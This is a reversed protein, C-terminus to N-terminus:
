QERGPTRAGAISLMFDGAIHMGHQDQTGPDYRFCVQQALVAVLYPNPPGGTSRWHCTTHMCTSRAATAKRDTGDAVMMIQRCQECCARAIQLMSRLGRILVQRTRIISLCGAIRQDPKSSLGDCLCPAPQHLASPAPSERARILVPEQQLSSVHTSRGDPGGGAKCYWRGRTQEGQKATGAVSLASGRRSATSAGSLSASSPVTRTRLVASLGRGGSCSGRGTVTVTVSTTLLPHAM